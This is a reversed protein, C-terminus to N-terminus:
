FKPVPNGRSNYIYSKYQSYLDYEISTSTISISNSAISEAYKLSHYAYVKNYNRNADTAYQSRPVANARTNHILSKYQLYSDYEISTSTM